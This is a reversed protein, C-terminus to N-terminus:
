TRLHATARARVRSGCGSHAGVTESLDVALAKSEKPVKSETVAESEKPAANVQREELDRLDRRDRQAVACRASSQAASVALLQPSM